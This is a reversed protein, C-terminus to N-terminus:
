SFDNVEQTVIHYNNGLSDQLRNIHAIAKKVYVPFENAVLTGRKPSVNIESTVGDWYMLLQYVDLVKAADIKVEILHIDEKDKYYVDIEAGGDWVKKQHPKDKGKLQHTNVISQIIKKRLSTESHKKTNKEPLFEAAIKERLLKWIESHPDLDTKNNTTSFDKKVSLEGLFNNFSVDGVKDPWVERFVGTKLVRGRVKLTLGCRANSGRYHIRLPYPWGKIGESSPENVSKDLTGQIYKATYEEGAFEIKIINEEKRISNNVLFPTPIPPVEKTVWKASDKSKYRFIIKNDNLYEHYMVGVHEGLRKILTEFTSSAAHITSFYEKKVEVSIKVGSKAERLVDLDEIWESLDIKEAQMNECIPGEVKFVDTSNIPNSYLQFNTQFGSTLMAMANKLGFGHENMEGQKEPRFGLNFINDEGTLHELSVGQSNDAIVLKISGNDLELFSAEIYAPNFNGLNSVRASLSNDILEALAHQFDIVQKAYSAWFNESHNKTKFKIM